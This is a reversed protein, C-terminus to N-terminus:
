FFISLKDVMPQYEWAAGSTFLVCSGLNDPTALIVVATFGKIFAGYSFVVGGITVNGYLSTGEYVYVSYGNSELDAKYSELVIFPSTDVNFVQHSINLAEPVYDFVTDIITCFSPQESEQIGSPLFPVPESLMPVYGAQVALVFVIGIVLILVYFYKVKKGRIKM